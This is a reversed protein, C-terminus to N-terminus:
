TWGTSDNSDKSVQSKLMVSNKRLFRFKSNVPLEAISDETTETRKMTVYDSNSNQGVQIINSSTPEM